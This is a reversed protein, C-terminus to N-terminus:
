DNPIYEQNMAFFIPLTHLTDEQPHDQTIGWPNPRDRMMKVCESLGYLEESQSTKKKKSLM